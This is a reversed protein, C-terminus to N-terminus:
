RATGGPAVVTNTKGEGRDLTRSINSKMTTYMENTVLAVSHRASALDGATRHWRALHLYVGQREIDDRAIKLANTWAGLADNIRAPKIGYYTQALDTALPFNEPDLSLAKGYLNMAKDFVQQETIRYFNTAERRFLYVTTALNQHYV